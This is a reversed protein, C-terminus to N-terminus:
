DIIKDEKIMDVFDIPQPLILQSQPTKGTAFITQWFDHTRKGGFASSALDRNVWLPMKALNRVFNRVNAWIQPPFKYQFLKKEEYPKGLTLFYLQIIKQIFKLWNYIIEEHSLRFAIIHDEPYHEGNQINNEIRFTGIDTDFKEIFIEEAIINMLDIIQTRELERPNDGEELLHNLPTELPDQHIFFSYFTKEITSYSLPKEKGRGVFDVYDKLKNKSNHIIENRQADLIFKKMERSEGKFHTVLAKESFSYDDEDLLHDNQYQKVRAIYITNGLHRQVSKDFAVQRLKTGANTNAKLLTDLNPDVFVRVPLKKIGLLVQATAKHQGDFISIKGKGGSNLIIWGLSVHLQPKKEFFEQVLGSLNRGISRPNIKEDHFLYEIPFNAFFYNQGSLEDHYLPCTYITNDGMDSFSFRVANGEIKLALEFKTGENSVLIDNLNPSRNDKGCQQRLKEFRALIRAVRLDSSQKSRNCSDHAIAFNLENDKGGTKLPQVHDIDNTHLQLDVSEECIFCNGKQTEWLRTLLENRQLENLSNLYQSRM